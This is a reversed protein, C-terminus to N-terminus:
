GIAKNISLLCRELDEAVKEWTYKKDVIARGSKGREALKEKNHYAYVISKAIEIPTVSPAYIGCKEDGIVSRHAPIDTVIVVKEMALYELLKLPCQSRWYPHDPLPVICVDSMEIFKPVETYDVRDHIVVEGQLGEKQVLHKLKTATPGTGLLFLVVDSYDPRLMKISEVTEELGRNATFVGHYFVVFRSSLGLKRKLKAADSAYSEPSFLRTSVGSSWVGVNCPDIEFTNCIENRMPQTIITMGDFLKKAVLISISFWLTQQFGRFGVTEVPISRVDLVFRRKKVKSFLLSPILSLISAEPQTAIIFHPNAVIIYFPLFLFCWIAFMVSSLLPVSRLPVSVISVGPNLSRSLLVENKSRTTIFVSTYGKKEMHKLIELSSAQYLYVDLPAPNIWLIRRGQFKKLKRGKEASTAGTGKGGEARRVCYTSFLVDVM